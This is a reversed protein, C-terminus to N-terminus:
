RRITPTRGPLQNGPETTPTTSDLTTLRIGVAVLVVGILIAGGQEASAFFGVVGLSIAWGVWTPLVRSRVLFGGFIATAVVGLLLGSVYVLGLSDLHACHEVGNAVGAVVLGAGAVRGVISAPRSLRNGLMRVLLLLAIGMLGYKLLDIVNVLYAAGTACAVFDIDPKVRSLAEGSVFAVGSAIAVRGAIRSLNKPAEERQQM